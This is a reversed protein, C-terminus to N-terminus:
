AVKKTNKELFLDCSVLLFANYENLAYFAYQMSM